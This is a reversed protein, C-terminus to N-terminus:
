EDSKWMKVVEIWLAVIVPLAVVSIMATVCVMCGNIDM